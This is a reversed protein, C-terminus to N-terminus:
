KERTKGRYLHSYLLEYKFWNMWKGNKYISGIYYLLYKGHTRNSQEELHSKINEIENREIMDLTRELHSVLGKSEEEIFDNVRDFIDSEGIEFIFGINLDGYNDDSYFCYDFHWNIELFVFAYPVDRRWFVYGNVESYWYEPKFEGKFSDFTTNVNSCVTRM